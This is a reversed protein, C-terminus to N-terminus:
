RKGSLLVKGVVLLVIGPVLFILGWLIISFILTFDDELGWVPVNSFRWIEYFVFTLCGTIGLAILVIGFLKKTKM